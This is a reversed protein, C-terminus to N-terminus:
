KLLPLRMAEEARNGATDTLGSGIAITVIGSDTRNTLRGRLELRQLSAWPAHPAPLSFDASLVRLPSFSLAGNTAELRFLGMLSFPDVEAGLATHFYLEIWTEVPVDFPYREAGAALPLDEFPEEAGYARPERDSPDAAQPALPLRIGALAPPASRPGDFRVFFRHSSRDANGFADEAGEKLVFTFYAGYPPTEPLSVTVSDSLGYLAEYHPTASPEVSLRSRLSAMDVPESFDLRLRYPREWASTAAAPDLTLVQVGNGDIGYAGLLEPPTRDSGATFAIRRETGITRGHIDPFAAPITLIYRTGFQLREAPVFVARRGEDVTRWIGQRSPSFALYDRCAAPSVPNSFALSVEHDPDDVVAGDEPSCATVTPREGAPRTTFRGEFPVELSLGSKDQAETGVTLRYDRGPAYPVHPRFILTRGEWSFSGGLSAGDETLSFAREAKPRDPTCSFRVRVEGLSDPAHYGEGPSWADVLFPADRLIDCSAALLCLAASLLAARRM